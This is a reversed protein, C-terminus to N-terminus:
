AGRVDEGTSRQSSQSTRIFKQCNWCTPKGCDMTHTQLYYNIIGRMDRLPTWPELFRDEIDVLEITTASGGWFAGLWDERTGLLYKGNRSFLNPYLLGTKAAAETRPIPSLDGWGYLIM